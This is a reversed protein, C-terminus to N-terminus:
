ALSSGQFSCDKEGDSKHATCQETQYAEAIYQTLREVSFGISVTIAPPLYRGTEDDATVKTEGYIYGGMTRVFERLEKVVKALCEFQSYGSEDKM